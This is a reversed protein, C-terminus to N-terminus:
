QTSSWIGRLSAAYSSEIGWGRAPGAEEVGVLLRIGEQVIRRPAGASCINGVRQVCATMRHGLRVYMQVLEDDLPRDLYLLSPEPSESGAGADQEHTAPEQGTDAGRTAAVGYAWLTLTARYVAFPELFSGSSFRRVHWLLAGAHVLALRAKYPDHLTWQRVRSGAQAYLYRRGRDETASATAAEDALVQISRLPTLLLLRALHLFLVTPHECGAAQAARANASWHLVDLCDSAGNRWRHLVPHKLHPWSEDDNDNDDNEKEQAGGTHSKRPQVEASPTWSLLQNRSQAVVENTQRYVAHIILLAGFEGVQPLLRKEMYLMELAETLTINRQTNGNLLQEDEEEQEEDWRSWIM